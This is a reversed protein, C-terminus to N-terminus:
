DVRTSFAGMKWLVYQETGPLKTIQLRGNARSTQTLFVTGDYTVGVTFSSLPDGALAGVAFMSGAVPGVDYNQAMKILVDSPEHDFLQFRVTPRETAEMIICRIVSVDPVVVISREVPIRALWKELADSEIKEEDLVSYIRLTEDKPLVSCDPMEVPEPVNSFMRELRPDPVRSAARDVDADADKALQTVEDSPTPQNAEIRLLAVVVAITLVSALGWLLRSIM